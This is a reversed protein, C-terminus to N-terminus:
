QLSLIQSNTPPLLDPLDTNKDMEDYIGSNDLERKRIDLSTIDKIAISIQPGTNSTYKILLLTEYKGNLIDIVQRDPNLTYVSSETCISVIQALDNGVRKLQTNFTENIM